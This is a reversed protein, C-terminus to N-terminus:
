REGPSREDVTDRRAPRMGIGRTDPDPQAGAVTVTVGTEAQVSAGPAPQQYIVRGRADPSDAQYRVEGLRLGAEQLIAELDDSHLGALDPVSVVPRGESVFLQLSAPLALRSGAEPESGIVGARGSGEERTVVEVGFGLRTLITAADEGTMGALDPVVRTEAGASTALSVTDGTRAVQGPLPRQAIVENRAVEAHRFRGREVAILGIDSLRRSAEDLPLGTMDPLETFDADLPDEAAPFFLLAAAAYGVGFM